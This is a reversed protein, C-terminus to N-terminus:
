RMFIGPGSETESFSRRRRDIPSLAAHAGAVGITFVRDRRFRSLARFAV